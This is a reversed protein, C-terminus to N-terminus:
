AEIFFGTTLYHNFIFLFLLCVGEKIIANSIIWHVSRVVRFLSTVVRYTIDINVQNEYKIHLENLSLM